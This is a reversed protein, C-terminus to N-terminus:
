SAGPLWHVDIGHEGLGIGVIDVRGAGARAAIRQVHRRKANDVADIPDTRGRSARVEVAVRTPGDMAILDLEGGAIDVNSGTIVLGQRSLYWAALREGM